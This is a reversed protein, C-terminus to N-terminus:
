ILIKTFYGNAPGFKCVKEPSGDEPARCRWCRWSCPPPRALGIFFLAVHLSDISDIPFIVSNVASVKIWKAPRTTMASASAATTFGPTTLATAAAAAPSAASAAHPAAAAFSFSFSCSTKFKTFCHVKWQEVGLILAHRSENMVVGSNHIHVPRAFFHQNAIGSLRETVIAHCHGFSSLKCAHLAFRWPNWGVISIELQRHPCNFADAFTDPSTTAKCINAPCVTFLTFLMFLLM